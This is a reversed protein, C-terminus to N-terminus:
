RDRGQQDDKWPIGCQEALTRSHKGFCSVIILLGGEENSAWAKKIPEINGSEKQKEAYFDQALEAFRHMDSERM